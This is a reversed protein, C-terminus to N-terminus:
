ESCEDVRDLFEGWISGDLFARPLHGDPANTSYNSQIWSDRHQWGIFEAFSEYDDDDDKFNRGNRAIWIRRQSTFGYRGASAIDWLQGVQNIVDCQLDEIDSENLWRRNNSFNLMISETEQDAAEWQNQSLYSALIPYRSVAVCGQDILSSVTSCQEPPKPPPLSPYAVNLNINLTINITLNSNVWPTQISVDSYRESLNQMMESIDLNVRKFVDEITLNPTSLHELIAATFTGNGSDGGDLARTNASTSYAIFLEAQSGPNVQAWGQSEWSSSLPNDRCADLIIIGTGQSESIGSIVRSLPIAHVDLDREESLQADIPILYNEGQSQMGHGAYYFLSLTNSDIRRHFEAIKSEMEGMDADLVRIVDFDLDILVDEMDRADNGPNNLPVGFRYDSNGIVIAVRRQHDALSTQSQIKNTSILLFFAVSSCFFLVFKRWKAQM